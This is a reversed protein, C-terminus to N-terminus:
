TAVSGDAMAQQVAHKAHIRAIVSNKSPLQGSETYLPFVQCNWWLFLLDVEESKNQDQLLELISNYFQESDTILDTCSFVQTLM